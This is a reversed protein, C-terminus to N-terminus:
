RHSYPSSTPPCSRCCSVHHTTSSSGRRTRVSSTAAVEAFSEYPARRCFPWTRRSSCPSAYRATTWGLFALLAGKSERAHEEEFRPMRARDAVVDEDTPGDARRM